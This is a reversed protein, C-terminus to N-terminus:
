RGAEGADLISRVARHVEDPSIGKMCVFSGVPCVDGGHIGCPRCTLGEVGLVRDRPGAPAFGFSPVTAGFIAVVPTGVGVALHMPASDNSVAAGCRRILEASQLLSLRGAANLLGDAELGESVQTCLVADQTGGILVVSLGDGILTRCLARFSEMPWRKTNWVSGPAVAIMRSADFRASEMRKQELLAQVIERDQENPYLRPLEDYRPAIGLPELLDLNRGIENHDRRYPVKDTLLFPAANAMFGIRRPIGASWPIAASRLSRHPIIALDFHKRRLIGAMGLMGGLGRDKGKKDYPIVEEIAPHNRLIEAASPIAVFSVKAGPDLTHLVQVLPLTLVIDGIFATHFILIKNPSSM